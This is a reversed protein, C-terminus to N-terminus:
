LIKHVLCFPNYQFQWIILAYKFPLYEIVESQAHIKFSVIIHSYM